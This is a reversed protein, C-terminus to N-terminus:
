LWVMGVLGLAVALLLLAVVAIRDVSDARRHSPSASAWRVDDRSM